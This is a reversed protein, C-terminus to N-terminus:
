QLIRGVGWGLAGTALCVVVGAGSMALFTMWNPWKEIRSLLATM